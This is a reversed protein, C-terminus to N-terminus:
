ANKLIKRIQKKGGERDFRKWVGRFEARKSAAQLRQSHILQGFAILQGRNEAAMPVSSAYAYLRDTAVCADQFDGLVDQLKKLRKIWRSLAQGYIPDFFEFLYRLRKCDIRLTHLAEDPSDSKIARGDRLVAKHQSCIAKKAVEGITSSGVTKGGFESPGSQLFETFSAKLQDYRDCSLCELLQKRAQRWQKALHQQFDSLYTGDAEPLEKTYHELNDQYVDLDRVDGLVAAVWKFERNFAKRPEAPLVRRFARLAARLRRTAVRMQHVSEPDLGEWARPEQCLMEKFLEFLHRYALKVAADRKRLPRLLKNAL